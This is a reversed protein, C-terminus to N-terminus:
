EKIKAATEDAPAVKMLASRDVSTEQSIEVVPFPLKSSFEVEEAEEHEVQDASKPLMLDESGMEESSETAHDSSSDYLAQPHQYWFNFNNFQTFRM